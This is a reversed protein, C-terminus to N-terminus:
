HTWNETRGYRFNEAYVKPKIALEKPADEVEYALGNARAYAEAAERTSFSLRLQTRTDGSGYWGTLPDLKRREAPAFELMWSHTRAKGSQMASRPPCHIRAIAVDRSM